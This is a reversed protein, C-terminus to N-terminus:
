KQLHFNSINISFLLCCLIVPVATDTQPNTPGGSAMAMFHQVWAFPLNPLKRYIYETKILDFATKCLVMGVIAGTNQTGAPNGDAM